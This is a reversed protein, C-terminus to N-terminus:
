KQSLEARADIKDTGTYIFNDYQFEVKNPNSTNNMWDMVEQAKAYISPGCVPYCNWDITVEKMEVEGKQSNYINSEAKNPQAALFLYAKEIKTATNDTNWYLITFIENEYGAEIKGDQILGHYTKVLSRPDKIGTLFLENLRTLPSGSREYYRMSISSASQMTTKSIVNLNTIGNTIDFTEASIDELGDIGKFDHEIIHVYNNLLDKYVTDQEGLATLFKPVAVVKAFGYGSEYMDFQALNGYDPIGRMLQYQTLNKPTKLGTFMGM